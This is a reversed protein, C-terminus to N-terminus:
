MQPTTLQRDEQGRQLEQDAQCNDPRHKVVRIASVRSALGRIEELNGRIAGRMKGIKFLGRDLLRQWRERNSDKKRKLWPQWSLKRRM